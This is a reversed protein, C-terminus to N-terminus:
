GSSYPSYRCIAAAMENLMLCQSRTIRRRENHHEWPALFLIRGEACADFFAGGPKAFDGFGNELLSIVPLKREYAARLVAKEAPSIGPSVLVAGKEAMSVFREVEISINQEETISRSLQVQVKYPKDILFINGLADFSYGSINQQRRVRFLEPNQRKMLLRRPNDRVYAIMRDLHGKGSLITDQYNDEWLKIGDTPLGQKRYQQRIKAVVATKFGLIVKSLHYDTKETVYLIGHFHDPMMQRSILRIQPYYSPIAEWADLVWGGTQTPQIKPAGEQGWPIHPNGTVTGLVPRRGAITITIMYITPSHYDHWEARRQMSPKKPGAFPSKPMIISKLIHIFITVASAAM